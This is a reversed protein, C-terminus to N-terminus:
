SIIIFRRMFGRVDCSTAFGERELIECSPLNEVYSALRAMSIESTMFVCYKRCAIRSVRILNLSAIDRLWHLIEGVTVAPLYCFGVFVLCLILPIVFSHFKAEERVCTQYRCISWGLRDEELHKTPRQWSVTWYFYFLLATGNGAM